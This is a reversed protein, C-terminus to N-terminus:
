AERLRKLRNELEERPKNAQESLKQLLGLRQNCVNYYYHFQVQLLKDREDVRDFEARIQERLSEAMQVLADLEVKLRSLREREPKRLLRNLM